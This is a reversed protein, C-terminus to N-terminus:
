EVVIVEGFRLYIASETTVAAMLVESGTRPTTTRGVYRCRLIAHLLELPHLAAPLTSDLSSKLATHGVVLNHFYELPSPIPQTHYHHKLVYHYFSM